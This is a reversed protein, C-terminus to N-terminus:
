LERKMYRVGSMFGRIAEPQSTKYISEGTKANTLVLQAGNDLSDVMHLGFGLEEAGREMRDAAYGLREKAIRQRRSAQVPSGRDIHKEYVYRDSSVLSKQVMPRQKKPVLHWRRDEADYAVVGAAKLLVLQNQVVGPMSASGKAMNRSVDAVAFPGAIIQVAEYVDELVMAPAVLDRQVPDKYKIHAMVLM